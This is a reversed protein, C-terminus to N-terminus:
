SVKYAIRLEQSLQEPDRILFDSVTKVGGQILQALTEETLATCIGAKLAM